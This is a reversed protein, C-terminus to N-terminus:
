EPQFKQLVKVVFRAASLRLRGLEYQALDFGPKSWELFFVLVYFCCIFSAGLLVGMSLVPVTSVYLLRIGEWVVEFRRICLKRPLHENQQEQHHHHHLLNEVKRQHNEIVALRQELRSLYEVVDTAWPDCRPPITEPFELEIFAEDNHLQQSSKQAQFDEGQVDEEGTLIQNPSTQVHQEGKCQQQKEPEGRDKATFYSAYFEPSPMGVATALTMWSSSMTAILFITWVNSTQLTMISTLSALIFPTM